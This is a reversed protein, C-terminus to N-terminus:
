KSQSLLKLKLMHLLDCLDWGVLLVFFLISDFSILHLCSGYFCLYNLLILWNLSHSLWIGFLFLVLRVYLLFFLFFLPVFFGRSLLISNIATATFTADAILKVQCVLLNVLPHLRCPIWIRLDHGLRSTLSKM